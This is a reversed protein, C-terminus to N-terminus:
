PVSWLLVNNSSSATALVDGTSSLALQRLFGSLKISKIVTPGSLDWVDIKGFSDAVALRKGDASAALHRPSASALTRLQKRNAVDWFRVTNDGAISVLRGDRLFLLGRLAASHGGLKGARTGTKGNWVLIDTAGPAGRKTVGTVVWAGDPSVAVVGTDAPVRWVARTKGSTVDWLAGREASIAAIFRSDATAALQRLHFWREKANATLTKYPKQEDLDWVQVRASEAAALYRGASISVGHRFATPSARWRSLQKGDSRRWRRVTGDGGVSLVQEDGHTFAVGAISWHHAPRQLLEKGAISDIIRVSSDLSALAVLRKGGAGFVLEGGTPSPRPLSHKISWSATDFITIAAGGATALLSGDPSYALAAISRTTALQRVTKRSALDWIAIRKWGAVALQKSDPSFAYADARGKHGVDIDLRKGTAASYVGFTDFHIAVWRADPSLAAGRVWGKGAFTRLLKGTALDFLKFTKDSGGTLVKQRDASVALHKIFGDHARLSHEVKGTFYDVQVVDGRHSTILHRGDASFFLGAGCDGLARLRKGSDLEWAVAGRSGCSVVVSGDPSVAASRVAGRHRLRVTGLRAIAGKPLPDGYLDKGPALAGEGPKAPPKAQKAATAADAGRADSAAAHKAAPAKAPQKAKDGDGKCSALLAVWTALLVRKGRM